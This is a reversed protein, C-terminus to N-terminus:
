SPTAIQASDPPITFWYSGTVPTVTQTHAAGQWTGNASITQGGLSASQAYPTSASLARVTLPESTPMAVQVRVRQPTDNILALSYHDQHIHTIFIDDLRSIDAAKLAKESMTGPDFLAVRVPTEVLLCSHVFKTIKM